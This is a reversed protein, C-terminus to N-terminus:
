GLLKSHLCYRLEPRQCVLSCSYHKGEQVFQQKSDPLSYHKHDCRAYLCASKLSETAYVAINNHEVLGNTGRGLLAICSCGQM